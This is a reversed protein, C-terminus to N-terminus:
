ALCRRNPRQAVTAYELALSLSQAIHEAKKQMALAAPKPLSENTCQEWLVLWRDFTAPTIRDAHALHAAVPQGKYRGTALMVSSWFDALRGLYAPRDEVASEFVPGLVQDARVRSYFAALLSPLEAETPVAINTVM